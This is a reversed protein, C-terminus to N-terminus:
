YTNFQSLIRICFPIQAVRAEVIGLGPSEEVRRQFIPNQSVVDDTLDRGALHTGRCPPLNPPIVKSLVDADSGGVIDLPGQLGTGGRHENADIILWRFVLNPLSFPVLSSGLFGLLFELFETSPRKM